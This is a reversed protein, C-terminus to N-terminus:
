YINFNYEVTAFQSVPHGDKIAPEFKIAQAAKIAAQTLGHSLGRVVLIHKVTGDKDLVMRLRVIGSIGASRAAETFAPVPKSTVRAKTTVERMSFVTRDAGTQDAIQAYVRLTELQNRWVDAEKDKPNLQLYKELSQAAEKFQRYPSEPAEQSPLENEERFVGILAQSKLLFAPSFTPSIKLAAEAEKLANSQEGDRLRAVGIVYHAEPDQPELALARVAERVAERSRNVLLLTYALGTRATSSTPQLKVATEFAKRADKTNGRRNLALGLYLWANGDNKHQKVATRLAEIAGLIDGQKYLAIGRATDNFSSGAPQQACVPGIFPHASVLLAMALVPYALHRQRLNFIFHRSM